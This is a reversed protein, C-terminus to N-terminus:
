TPNLVPAIIEPVNPPPPTNALPPLKVILPLPLLPSGFPYRNLPVNLPGTVQLATKLGSPLRPFPLQDYTSVPVTDPESLLPAGAV